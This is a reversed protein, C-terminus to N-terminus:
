AEPAEILGRRAAPPRPRGREVAHALFAILDARESARSACARNLSPALSPRKRSAVPTTRQRRSGADAALRRAHLARYIGARAPEADQLRHAGPAAPWRVGGACGQGAPRHRPLSRRHLALGRPVARVRGQRHFPRFGRVENPRLARRTGRSGPMSARPLLSSRACTAPLPRPWTKKSIPAPEAFAAQFQRWSIWIPTSGRWSAPGIGPWRTPPLSRCAAGPSGALARARGLFLAESWALNWLSPTNRALSAGTLGRARRRGDTMSREPRHCSACSREGGGSLRPDSFLRAGLAVKAPTLPNDAPAPPQAPRRFLHGWAAEVRLPQQPRATEGAAALLLLATAAVWLSGKGQPM